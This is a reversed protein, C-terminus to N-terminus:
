EYLALYCIADARVVGRRVQSTPTIREHEHSKHSFSAARTLNFTPKRKSKFANAVISEEVGLLATLAIHQKLGRIGACLIL